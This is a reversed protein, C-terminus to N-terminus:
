FLFGFADVTVNGAGGQAISNKIGFSQASTGFTQGTTASVITALTPGTLETHTATAFVNNGNANFGAAVSVTSLSLTAARLVLHTVICGNIPFSTNTTPVTFVPQLATSNVDIVIGALPTFRQFGTKRGGYINGAQETLRGSGPTSGASPVLFTAEYMTGNGQIDSLILDINQIGAPGPGVAVLTIQYDQAMENEKDEITAKKQWGLAASLV